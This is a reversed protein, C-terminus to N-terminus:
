EELLSEKSEKKDDTPKFYTSSDFKKHM